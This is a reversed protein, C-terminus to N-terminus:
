ERSGLCQNCSFASTSLRCAKTHCSCSHWKFSWKDTPVMIDHRVVVDPQTRQPLNWYNREEYNHARGQEDRESGTLELVVSIRVISSRCSGSWIGVFHLEPLAMNSEDSVNQLCELCSQDCCDRYGFVQSPLAAARKAIDTPLPFRGTLRDYGCFCLARTLLPM